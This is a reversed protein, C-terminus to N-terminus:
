VGAAAVLIIPSLIPLFVRLLICFGPCKCKVNLRRNLAIPLLQM